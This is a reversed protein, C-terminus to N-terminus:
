THVSLDTARPPAQPPAPPNPSAPEGPAPPRLTRPPRPTSPPAGAVHYSPMGAVSAGLLQEGGIVPTRAFVDFIFIFLFYIM